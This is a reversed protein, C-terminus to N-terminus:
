VPRSRYTSALPVPVVCRRPPLTFSRNLFLSTRSCRRAACAMVRGVVGSVSESESCCVDFDEGGACHRFLGLQQKGAGTTLDLTVWDGASIAAVGVVCAGIALGVAAAQLARAIQQSQYMDSTPLSPPLQPAVPGDPQPAPSVDTFRDPEAMLFSDFRYGQGNSGHGRRQADEGDGVEGRQLPVEGVQNRLGAGCTTM